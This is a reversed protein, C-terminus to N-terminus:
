ESDNLEGRQSDEFAVKLKELDSLSRMVVVWSLYPPFNPAESDFLSRSHFGQNLLEEHLSDRIYLLLSNKRRTDIKLVFTGEDNLFSHLCKTAKVVYDYEELFNRIEALLTDRLTGEDEYLLRGPKIYGGRKKSPFSKVVKKPHNSAAKIKERKKAAERLGRAATYVSKCDYRLYCDEHPCVSGSGDFYEKGFCEPLYM